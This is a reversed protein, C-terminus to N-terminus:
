HRSGQTPSGVVPHREVIVSKGIDHYLALLRFFRETHAGLTLLGEPSQQSGFIRDCVLIFDAAHQPQTRWDSVVKYREQSLLMEIGEFVREIHQPYRGDVKPISVLLDGLPFKRLTKDDPYGQKLIDDAESFSLRSNETMEKAM